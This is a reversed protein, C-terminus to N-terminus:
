SKSLYSEALKLIISRQESSLVPWLESLIKLQERIESAQYSNDTEAVGPTTGAFDVNLDQFFWSLPMNFIRAVRYLLAASIKNNGLEYRSFQQQTIGLEDAVFAASVGHKKRLLKLRSGIHMDLESTPSKAM